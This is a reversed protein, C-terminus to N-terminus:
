PMKHRGHLNHAVEPVSHPFHNPLSPMLHRHAGTAWCSVVVDRIVVVSQTTQKAWCTCGTKGLPNGLPHKPCPSVRHFAGIRPIWDYDAKLASRPLRSVGLCRRSVSLSTNRSFGCPITHSPFVGATKGDLTMQGVKQGVCGLSWNFSM